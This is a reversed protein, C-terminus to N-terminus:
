LNQWDVTRAKIAKSFSCQTIEFLKHHDLGIQLFQGADPMEFENEITQKPIPEALPLWRYEIEQNTALLAIGLGAVEQEHQLYGGACYLLIVDGPQVPNPYKPNIHYVGSEVLDKAPRSPDSHPTQPNGFVAVFYKPHPLTRSRRVEFHLGIELADGQSRPLVPFGPV